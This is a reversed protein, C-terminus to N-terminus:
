PTQPNAEPRRGEMLKRSLGTLREQDTRSLQEMKAYLMQVLQRAREPEGRLVQLEALNLFVVPDSQAISLSKEFSKLAEEYRGTRMLVVGLTDWAQFVKPNRAVVERALQEAEPYNGRAQLIWGLDNLAALSREASVSRRLWDEAAAYDDKRLHVVGMAYTGMPNGPEISLLKRAHEALDRMEGQQLDLRLLAELPAVASPTASAAQELAARAAGFDNERMALDARAAAAYGAGGKLGNLRAVCEMAGEANGAEIRLRALSVWGRLYDPERDLLKRLREEAQTSQGREHDLLALDVEVEQAPVGAEVAQRLLSEADAYNKKQTQLRALGLLAGKNGPDAALLERYISEGKEPQEQSVYLRALLQKMPGRDADSAVAVARELGSIAVGRRGSLAWSWGLEAFAEPVRIYGYYRSLAWLRIQAANGAIIRKIETRIADADAGPWGNRIMDDMNLLASVNDPELRRAAQFAAFAEPRADRDLMWVGLNNAVLSLHRLLHRGLAGPLGPNDSLRKLRPAQVTWFAEHAKLLAEPAQELTEPVRARFYALEPVSEMGAGDWLEPAHMVAANTVVTPDTRFWEELMPVLGIDSLNRLRQDPFFRCLYQRYASSRAAQTDVLRLARGQARAAALLHPDVSGDTVLWQRDGLSRVVDGAFANLDGAPRGDAQALNRWPVFAILALLPLAFLGGLYRRAWERIGDQEVTWWAAPLRLWYAVLYGALSATLAYPTVLLRQGETVGWPGLRTNLLVAAVLGTMVLHLLYYAWDREGNLGRRAVLLATVWPVISAMVIILWGRAPLGHAILNYQGRLLAGVASLIGKQSRLESGITGQFQWAAALYLGLGLAGCLLLLLIRVPRLENRQWLLFLLAGGLAPAFIYMTAFEAMGAGILFTALLTLGFWGRQLYGLLARIVALLILLDLAATHARTSVIWFPISFALAAAASLAGLACALRVAPLDRDEAEVSRRLAIRVVDYLLWVCLAGCLASLANLLYVASLFPRAAAPAGLLHYLAHGPALQPMLGLRVAALRASEGPFLGDSLTVLYVAFALLAVTAGALAEPIARPRNV